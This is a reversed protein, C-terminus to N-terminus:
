EKIRLIEAWARKKCKPCKLYKKTISNPGLFDKLGSIEFVAGYKPCIYAFNEAHWAVLLAMGAVVILLWFYWYDPLMLVSFFGLTAIFVLLILTTRYWDKKTVEWYKEGNM